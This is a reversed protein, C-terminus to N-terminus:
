VPAYSLGIEYLAEKVLVQDNEYKVWRPSKDYKVYDISANRGNSLLVDPDYEGLEVMQLHVNQSNSAAADEGLSKDSLIKVSVLHDAGVDPDEKGDIHRILIFPLPDKNHRTIAARYIQGLWSILVEEVDDPAENYM